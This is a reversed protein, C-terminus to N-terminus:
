RTRFGDWVDLAPKPTGDAERLGVSAFMGLTDIDADSRGQDRMAATYDEPDFDSLLLYIWFVLRDGIQDHLARLYGSQDEPTGAFPGIPRSTFGGEAVALPKDTRALLPTYYGGPIDAASRFAAFPYSSIVWLDREPEFATM